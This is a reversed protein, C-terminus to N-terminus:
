EGRMDAGCNPCFNSPSEYKGTSYGCESCDDSQSFHIWHGKRKNPTVPPAEEIMASIHNFYNTTYFRETARRMLWERSIADCPEQKYIKLEKLWEALQRHEQGCTDCRSDAIEEAHKIADDLSMQAVECSEKEDERIIADECPEQSLSKIAVDLAWNRDNQTKAAKPIDIKVKMDDLVEIAKKCEERTM